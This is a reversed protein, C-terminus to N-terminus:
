QLYVEIYIIYTNYVYIGLCLRHLLFLIIKINGHTRIIKCQVVFHYAREQPSGESAESNSAGYFIEIESLIQTINTLTSLLDATLNVFYHTVYNVIHTQLM